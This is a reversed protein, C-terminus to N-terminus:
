MPKLNKNLREVIKEFDRQRAEETKFSLYRRTYTLRVSRPMKHFNEFAPSIGELKTSLADVQDDTIQGQKPTNWTGNQKAADVAIKGM